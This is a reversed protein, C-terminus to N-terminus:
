SGFIASRQFQEPLLPRGRRVAQRGDIQTGVRSAHEDVKSLLQQVADLQARFPIGDDPGSLCPIEECVTKEGHELRRALERDVFSDVRKEHARTRLWEGAQQRDGQFYSSLPGDVTGQYRLASSLPWGPRFPRFPGDANGNTGSLPHGWGIRPVPSHTAGDLGRDAM